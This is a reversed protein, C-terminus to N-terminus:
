DNVGDGKRGGKVVREFVPFFDIDEIAGYSNIFYNHMYDSSNRVKTGVEGKTSFDSLSYHISNGDKDREVFKIEDRRFLNHNLFIPNHTNFILQAHHINVEDNHFINIIDMLAVPHLSADFEDVVITAGTAIGHLLRTGLVAFRVTGYSEFQEAAIAIESWEKNKKEKNRNEVFSFLTGVRDDEKTAMFGLVDGGMGLRKVLDTLAPDKGGRKGPTLQRAIAVDNARYVITFKEQLWQNVQKVLKASFLTKFGNELFLEDNKLGNEALRIVVDENGVLGKVLLDKKKLLGLGERDKEIRLKKKERYFIEVGDMAMRESLIVRKADDQMFTGIDALFSYKILRGQDVFEIQFGIPRAEEDHCNPILRLVEAAANPTSPKQDAADNIHGRLVIARFTDMAGVINTKGAANPGYIVASCLARYTKNGVKERQISYDLGRQRSPRMSFCLEERFSKYNWAKFELLM